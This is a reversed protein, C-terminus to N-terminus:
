HQDTILTQMSRRRSKKKKDAMALIHYATGDVMDIYAPVSIKISKLPAEPYDSKMTFNVVFVHQGEVYENDLDAMTIGLAEFESSSKAHGLTYTLIFDPAEVEIFLYEKKSPPFSEFGDTIEWVKKTSM